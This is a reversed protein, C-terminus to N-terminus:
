DMKQELVALVPLHDSDIDSLVRRELVTFHRSHLIHDIPLRGWEPLFSPWTAKLGHGQGSDILRDGQIRKFWHSWPSTNLDGVLITPLTEQAILSGMSGLQANREQWLRTGMPPRPHTVWLAIEEGARDLTCRFTPTFNGSLFKEELDTIPFKSFIALGTDRESLSAARFEYNVLGQELHDYWRQNLELLVVVSPNEEEILNILKDHSRNSQLVNFHMVSFTQIPNAIATKEFSYPLYPLISFFCYVFIPITILFRKLCRGTLLLVMAVLILATSQVRFHSFVDFSWHWRGLIGLIPGSIAVFFLTWYFLNKKNM